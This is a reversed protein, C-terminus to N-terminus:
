DVYLEICIRHKGPMSEGEAHGQKRQYAITLLVHSPCYDCRHKTRMLARFYMGIFEKQIPIM